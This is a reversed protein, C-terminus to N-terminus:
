ETGRAIKAVFNWVAPPTPKERVKGLFLGIASEFANMLVIEKPTFDGIFKLGVQLQRKLEAYKDMGVQKAFELTVEAWYL